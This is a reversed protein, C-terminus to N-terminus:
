EIVEDALALLSAPITLGLAKATKLNIILEFRTPQVVPLDTPKEGKLIRGVYIGAQRGSETLSTSYSMLGGAEVYERLGYIAPLAHRAAVAVLHQARSNLFPDTGVLLAQVRRQTIEASLAELDADNAVELIIIRQQGIAQAATEVDELVSKTRPDNPNVVLATLGGDPVLDRLLEMRKAALASTFLTVGTMNGNPGSLTAVLGNRIPDPGSVFVVPITSTVVKLSLAAPLGPAFLVSPQLQILEAALSPLRDYRGAAWRYEITINQREVYGSESLAQRFAAIVDADGEASGAGLVGVIAEVSQQARAVLPWAALGFGVLAIFNRRKV